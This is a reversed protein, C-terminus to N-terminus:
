QKKFLTPPHTLFCYLATPVSNPASSDNGLQTTVTELEDTKSLLTAILALKERYITAHPAALAILRQLFSLPAFLDQPNLQLALAITHAQLIAGEKGLLHAHTILSAREVFTRLLPINDYYFVAIPAIRMAAGNGFSGEEFVM